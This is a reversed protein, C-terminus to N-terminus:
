NPLINKQALIKSIPLQFLVTEFNIKLKFSVDYTDLKKRQELVEAGTKEQHLRDTKSPRYDAPSVGPMVVAEHRKWKYDRTPLRKFVFRPPLNPTTSDQSGAHRSSRSSSASGMALRHDEADAEDGDDSEDDGDRRRSSGGRRRFRDRGGKIQFCFMILSAFQESFRLHQLPSM